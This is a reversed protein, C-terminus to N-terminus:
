TRKLNSRRLWKCCIQIPKLLKLHSSIEKRKWHLLRRRSHSRSRKTRLRKNEWAELLKSTKNLRTRWKALKRSSKTLTTKSFTKRTRLARLNRGTSMLRSVFGSSKVHLRLFPTQPLPRKKSQKKEQMVSDKTRPNSNSTRARPKRVTRRTNKTQLKLLTTQKTLNM